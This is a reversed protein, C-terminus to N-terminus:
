EFAGLGFGAMAGSVAGYIWRKLAVRFDFPYKGDSENWKSWADLDVLAAAVFGAVAGAIIKKIDM